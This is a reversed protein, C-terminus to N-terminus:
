KPNVRHKCSLYDIYPKWRLNGDISVGLYNASDTPFSENRSFKLKMESDFQKRNFKFIELETKLMLRFKTQM